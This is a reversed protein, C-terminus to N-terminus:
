LAGLPRRANARWRGLRRWPLYDLPNDGLLLRILFIPLSEDGYIQIRRLAFDEDHMTSLGRQTGFACRYGSAAVARQLAPTHHGHPYAFHLPRVGCERELTRAAGDLERHLADASCTRLDTHTATHSGIEVGLAKLTHLQGWSLM